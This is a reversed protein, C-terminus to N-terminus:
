RPHFTNSRVYNDFHETLGYKEMIKFNDPFYGKQSVSNITFSALRRCFCEHVWCNSINRCFQGFITLKRFDIESEISCIRLLSLTVDTRTRISLGQIYKVCFRNARELLMLNSATLSSWTECGYLTKPLVVSEYITKCSLPHLSESHTTGCNVLSLLTGKLKNAAEKLNIDICLYKNCNVGLHKYNVDENVIHPGLRWQRKHRSYVFKTENFVLVSCKVPVYDFRWKCSYQHCIRMLMELGNKSLSLLVM